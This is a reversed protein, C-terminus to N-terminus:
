LRRELVFGAMLSMGIDFAFLQSAFEVCGNDRREWYFKERLSIFIEMDKSDM